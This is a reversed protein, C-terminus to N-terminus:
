PTTPPKSPPTAPLLGLSDASPMPKGEWHAASIQQFRSILEQWMDNNRQYRLLINPLWAPLNENLWLQRYLETLRTTYDRLDELRGNTSTINSLDSEVMGQDKDHEHALADAYLQSIEEAYQYRMALADLKLAAFELDALTDANRRARGASERLVTFSEEATRRVLEAVPLAKQADKQGEPSFPHHWFLEDWAGGLQQDYTEVPAGARLVANLHGLKKLAETFRHDTNRYFAWDFKQDFDQVPTQGSEWACAAGYVISWWNPGYLSEGDDNWVTVDTGLAGAKKGDSLFTQINAAAEEYDPVILSTNGAWPCVFIKMGTGAFPKLWKDYNPHADYEWSAVILDKPLSPIMEPHEVAIDGWFMVQKNYRQVLKAVQILNDVYVRGYGQKEVLPASRGQGLEQTEDCGIHYTSAPFVSAMQAYMQDLFSLAHPDGAALVHGHPREAFGSYAEFRLVKHLHGCAETAPIIDVHYPRAFAVLQGWDARALTDSLVGVLPQGDMRFSDEIYMYLQNMKFEALTRVLRKLYNLNPVPGRSMDVQAGRLLLSPWDRVRVGLIQSEPGEGVLLQRLTQVGYFIGAADKGAVLVQDRVVELVYGQEGIDATKIQHRDLLSRVAPQDFRGLLVAPKGAPPELASSVPFHQGTAFYLEEQLTEAAFRDEDAAPSILVIALDSTVHLPGPLNQTERPQPILQPQQAPLSISPMAILLIFAIM